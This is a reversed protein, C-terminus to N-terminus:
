SLIFTSRSQNIKCVNAHRKLSVYDGAANCVLTKMRREVDKSYSRSSRMMAQVEDEWTKIEPEMRAARM